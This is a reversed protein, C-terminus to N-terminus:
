CRGTRELLANGLGEDGLRPITVARTGSMVNPRTSCRSFRMLHDWKEPRDLDM